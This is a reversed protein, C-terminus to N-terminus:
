AWVDYSIHLIFDALLSTDAYSTGGMFFVFAIAALLCGALTLNSTQWLSGALPTMITMPPSWPLTLFSIDVIIPVAIAAGILVPIVLRWRSAYINVLMAISLPLLFVGTVLVAVLAPWGHSVEGSGPIIIGHVTLLVPAVIALEICISAAIMRWTLLAKKLHRACTHRGSRKSSSKGGGSPSQIVHDNELRSIAHTPTILRLDHAILMFAPYLGLLSILWGTM